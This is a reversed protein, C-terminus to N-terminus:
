AARWLADDGLPERVAKGEAVLEVLAREAELRDPADNGRTMLAAVEQTTLGSEFYQLLPAPTEPPDRRDLRPNLNCILVDYAGVSQFGGAELRHGNSEFVV